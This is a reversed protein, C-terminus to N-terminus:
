SPALPLGAPPHHRHCRQICGVLVSRTYQVGV